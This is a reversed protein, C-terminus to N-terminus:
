LLAFMEPYILDCISLIMYTKKRDQPRLKGFITDARFSSFLPNLFPFSYFLLLPLTLVCLEGMCEPWKVLYCTAM